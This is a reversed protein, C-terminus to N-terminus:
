LHLHGSNDSAGLWSGDPSFLVQVFQDQEPLSLVTGLERATPLHWLKLQDDGGGTALTRGDPSYDVACLFNQHGRLETEPRRLNTDRLHVTFGLAMGGMALQQGDPSVALRATEFD